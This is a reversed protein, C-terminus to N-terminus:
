KKDKKGKQQAQKIAETLMHIARATEFGAEAMRNMAGVFGHPSSANRARAAGDRAKEAETM